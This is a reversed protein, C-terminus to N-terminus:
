GKWFTNEAEIIEIEVQDVQNTLIGNTGNNEGLSIAVLESNLQELEKSFLSLDAEFNKEYNQLSASQQDAEIHQIPEKQNFNLLMVASVIVVIAAVSATKVFVVTWHTRSRKELRQDIKQKIQAITQPSPNPAPSKEFLVDAFVFDNKAQKAQDPSYFKSLLDDINENKNKFETM